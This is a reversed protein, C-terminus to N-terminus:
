LQIIEQDNVTILKKDKLEAVISKPIRAPQGGHGPSTNLNKLDRSNNGRLLCSLCGFPPNYYQNKRLVALDM